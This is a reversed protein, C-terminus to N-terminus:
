RNCRVVAGLTLFASKVQLACVAERLCTSRHRYRIKAFGRYLRVEFIEFSGGVKVFLNLVDRSRVPILKTQDPGQRHRSDTGVRGLLMVGQLATAQRRFGKWSANRGRFGLAFFTKSALFAGVAFRLLDLASEAAIQLLPQATTEPRLVVLIAHRRLFGRLFMIGKVGASRM